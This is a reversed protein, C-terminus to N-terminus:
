ALNVVNIVSNALFWIFMRYCQHQKSAIFGTRWCKHTLESSYVRKWCVLVAIVSILESSIGCATCFDYRSYCHYFLKRAVMYYNDDCKTFGKIMNNRWELWKKYRRFNDSNNNYKHTPLSYIRAFESVLIPTCIENNGLSLLMIKEEYAHKRIAYYVNDTQSSEIDIIESCPIWELKDYENESELSSQVLNDIAPNNVTESAVSM